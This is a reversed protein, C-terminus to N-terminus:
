QVDPDPPWSSIAEPMSLPPRHLPWLTQFYGLILVAWSYTEAAILMLGFTLSVPDDWNLTATYRWWLYRCSITLSLVILMLTPLRGPIRRVVMAVGWLLLVFIFQTFVSFPQSICLLALLTAVLVASAFLAKRLLSPMQGLLRDSRNELDRQRAWLPLKNLRHYLRQRWRSFTLSGSRQSFASQNEPMVLLLWLTQLAYRLIDALRPHQAFIHPYLTQRQAFVRQWQPTEFRFVAWGLACWLCQMRAVLPSAGLKRWALYRVHQAQGIRPVLFWRMLM